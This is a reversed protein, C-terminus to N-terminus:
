LAKTVVSPQLHPSLQQGKLTNGTTTNGTTITSENSSFTSSTTLTTPGETTNGTTVNGTTTTSEESSFTSSTNLTTSGETTNRSFTSSTNLTTSGETTNGTTTNGTTITSEESSFTSSISLTTNETTITTDENSTNGYTSSITLTTPSATTTTCLELTCNEAEKEVDLVVDAQVIVRDREIRTQALMNLFTNNSWGAAPLTDNISWPNNKEIRVKPSFGPPHDKCDNEIKQKIQLVADPTEDPVVFLLAPLFGLNFDSRCPSGVVILAMSQVLGEPLGGEEATVVQAENDVFYQSGEAATENLLSKLKQQLIEDAILGQHLLEKATNKWLTENGDANQPSDAVEGELSLLTLIKWPNPSEQYVSSNSDYSPASDLPGVYQVEDNSIYVLKDGYNAVPVVEQSVHGDNNNAAATTSGPDNVSNVLRPPVIIVLLLGIYINITSFTTRAVGEKTYTRDM